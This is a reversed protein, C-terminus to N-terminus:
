IGNIHFKPFMPINAGYPSPPLINSMVKTAAFVDQMDRFADRYEIWQAEDYERNHVVNNPLGFPNAMNTSGLVECNITFIHNRGSQICTSPAHVGTMNGGTPSSSPIVRFLVRMNSADANSIASAHTTAAINHTRAIGGVNNTARRITTVVIADLNPIKNIETNIANIAAAGTNDTTSHDYYAPVSLEWPENLDM